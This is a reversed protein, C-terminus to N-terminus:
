LVLLGQFEKVFIFIRNPKVFFAISYLQYTLKLPILESDVLVLRKTWEGGVERVPYVAPGHKSKM